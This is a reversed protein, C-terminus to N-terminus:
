RAGGIIARFFQDAAFVANSGAGQLIPPASRILDQASKLVLKTM